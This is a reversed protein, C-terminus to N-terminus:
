LIYRVHQACSFCQSCYLFCSCSYLMGTTSQINLEDIDNTYRCFLDFLSQRIYDTM